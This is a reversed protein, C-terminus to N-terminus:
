RKAFLPLITIVINRVESCDGDEEGCVMIYDCWPAM